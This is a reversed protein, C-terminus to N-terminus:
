YKIKIQFSNILSSKFTKNITVPIFHIYKYIIKIISENM